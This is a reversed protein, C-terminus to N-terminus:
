EEQIVDVHHSETMGVIGLVLVKLVILSSLTM